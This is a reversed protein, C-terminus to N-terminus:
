INPRSAQLDTVIKTFTQASEMDVDVLSDVNRLGLEAVMGLQRLLEGYCELYGDVVSSHYKRVRGATPWEGWVAFERSRDTQGRMAPVGEPVGSQCLTDAMKHLDRLAEITQPAQLEIDPSPSGLEQYESDDSM